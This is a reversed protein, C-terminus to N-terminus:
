SSNELADSSMFSTRSLLVSAFEAVYLQLMCSVVFLSWSKLSMSGFSFVWISLLGMKTTGSLMQPWGISTYTAMYHIYQTALIHGHLKLM